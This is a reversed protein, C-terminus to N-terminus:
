RQRASFLGGLWSRKTKIDPGSNVNILNKLSFHLYNINKLTIADSFAEDHSWQQKVQSISNNVNAVLQEHSQTKKLGETIKKAQKSDASLNPAGKSQNVFNYQELAISHLRAWAHECDYGPQQWHTAIEDILPFAQREYYADHDKQRPVPQHESYAPAASRRHSMGAQRRAGMMGAAIM